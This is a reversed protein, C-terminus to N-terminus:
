HFMGHEGLVEDLPDGQLGLSPTWILCRVGPPFGWATKARPGPRVTHNRGVGVAVEM